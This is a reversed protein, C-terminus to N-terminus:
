VLLGVNTQFVKIDVEINENPTFYINTIDGSLGASISGLPSDSYLSGFETIYCENTNTNSIVLFESVQYNLSTLDEISIISYSINYVNNLYSTITTISPSSSSAIGVSYSNISSGELTQSGTSSFGSTSISVILTNIVYDVETEADPILDIIVNGGSIYANYTGIGSTSRSNFSNTTIQGYDM